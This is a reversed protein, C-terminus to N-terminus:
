VHAMEQRALWAEVIAATASAGIRAAGAARMAEFQELTRVGGAAKVAIRGRGTEVLLRVDEVTAGGGGFGTSTKVFDAGAEVACLTLRRKQEATLACCELIVKLCCSGCAEKLLRIEETVADYAGDQAWGQQIVMDIETAGLYLAERTEALKSATSQFGLPFGVVTCVAVDSGHLCDVALPVYVPAVCVSACQYEVAEECLQEIDRRCADPKLLTHDIWATVPREM